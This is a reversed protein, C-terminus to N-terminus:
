EEPERYGAEPWQSGMVVHGYYMVQRWLLKPTMVPRGQGSRELRVAKPRRADRWAPNRDRRAEIEDRLTRGCRVPGLEHRAMQAGSRLRPRARVFGIDPPGM